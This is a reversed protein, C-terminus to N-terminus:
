GVALITAMGKECAPQASSERHHQMIPLLAQDELLRRIDTEANIDKLKGQLM